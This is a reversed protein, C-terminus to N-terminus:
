SPREVQKRGGLPNGSWKRVEPLTRRGTWSKRSLGGVRCQVEPLTGRGMGSRGYSRRVLTPDESPGGWGLGKAPHGSGRSVERCVASRGSFRGVRGLGGLRDGSGDRVVRFTGLGMGFKWRTGRGTGSRRPDRPWDWGGLLTGWGKRSEGSSKGVRRLSLLSGGWGDWVGPNTERGTGSGRSSRKVWEPWVKCLVERGM